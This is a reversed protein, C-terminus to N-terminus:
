HVDYPMLDNRRIMLLAQQRTTAQALLQGEADYVNYIPRFNLTERKVYAGEGLGASTEPDELFLDDFDALEIDGM